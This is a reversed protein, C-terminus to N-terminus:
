VGRFYHGYTVGKAKVKKILKEHKNLSGKGNNLVDRYADVLQIVEDTSEDTINLRITSIGTSKLKDLNELMFLVDANFITSRCDIRDCHVPFEKGVRDRMRYVGKECVGSCATGSKYGGAISGAPCYESMMVPVRGYAVIEKEFGDDPMDMSSLQGMNLEMSLAAGDLKLSHWEHLSYSNYINLSHDGMIKLAPKLHLLAAMSYNGAMIGDIGSNAINQLKSKILRDYNGRTIPPIWIYKEFDANSFGDPLCSGKESIFSSFPIYVRDAHLASFDIEKPPNYFLVSIKMKNDINRSNGPFHLLNFKSEVADESMTRDYKLTRKEEIDELARRRLENMESVPLALGEDLDIDVKQFEFATGGTKNIQEFARQSTLAKNVATEPPQGTVAAINGREDWVTFVVPTDKKVTLRCELKIKRRFGHSYSEKASENLSKDSTKYVKNGNHIRGSINGVRVTMGSKATKINVGNSKLVSVINGPHEAEGNWVEIGDGISIDGKLKIDLLKENRNYAVADGIYVGWNKPKECSMMSGGSKGHLYGSYMGGRNFIQTIDSLDKSEIKINEPKNENAGSLADIYKRYIRVTTAVYEPSKMRGEIKFSKVGAKILRGLENLSCLDKPSLLYGAGKRQTGDILEYPLRCPQACRGRNGSRAGIMSSMLCQGSYSICLAGHVFTELEIRSNLAIHEIEELSLERALVVRSFGLQELTRIGEPNYITMQTSGHLSLDPFLKRILGAYGIDQVIVGDIGALYSEEIMSLAQKMESDSILTNATLYINVDRVHAYDIAKKLTEKEFNGAFQRANFLKGGLYVADAGNEVAALFSDWDGAPALLEVKNNM